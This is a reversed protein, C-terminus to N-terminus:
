DHQRTCVTGSIVNVGINHPLKYLINVTLISIGQFEWTQEQLDHQVVTNRYSSGFVLM